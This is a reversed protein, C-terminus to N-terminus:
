RYRSWKVGPPWVMEISKGWENDAKTAWVDENNCDLCIPWWRDERWLPECEAGCFRCKSLYTMKQGLWRVRASM